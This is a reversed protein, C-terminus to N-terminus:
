HKGEKCEPPLVPFRSLDNCYSYFMFKSRVWEMGRQQEASLKVFEDGEIPDLALSGSQGSRTCSSAAKTQNWACGAVLFNKFSAVFPGFKYNVPKKGGHTAWQSGDWITSYISMPKSPYARAMAVSHNVERVPLNDVLFVIHHQNWILSYEHFDATPDFWLFFKEERGIGTSGDGYVNTQLAWEKRKEHGLLEFDIEDHNHPYAESNSMYFAVVVGASYDMPLKIAASFFGYYYADNSKFGSGSTKDLMLSVQSGNSTKKINQSGFLDSFAGDFVLRPFRDTLRATTPPIPTNHRMSMSMAMCSIFSLVFLLRQTLTIM